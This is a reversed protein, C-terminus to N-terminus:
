FHFIRHFRHDGLVLHLAGLLLALAGFVVATVLSWSLGGSGAGAIIGDLVLLGAGVLLAAFSLMAAGRLRRAGLAGLGVLGLALAEIPLGLSWFWRATGILDFAALLLAVSAFWGLAVAVRSRFVLAVAVVAELCTLSALPWLSWSLRGSVAVDVVTVVVAATFGMAGVIGGVRRRTQSAGYTQNPDTHWPVPWSPTGPGLDDFRPVRTSCLPCQAVSPDVEVGCRPCYPM